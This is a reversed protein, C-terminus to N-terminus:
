YNGMGGGSSEGRVEEYTEAKKESTASDKSASPTQCASLLGVVPIVIIWAFLRRSRVPDSM